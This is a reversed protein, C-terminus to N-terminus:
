DEFTFRFDGSPLMFNPVPKGAEVLVNDTPIANPGGPLRFAQILRRGAVPLLDAPIDRPTRGALTELWEPRGHRMPYRPFVVQMDTYKEMGHLVPYSGDKSRLMFPRGGHPKALLAEYLPSEALRWPHEHFVTQDVHLMDLNTMRRLHEGMMVMGNPLTSKYLHGYGVFILVKADKDKAFIRDVLNKAQGLERADMNERPTGTMGNTTHEYSIIKWGDVMARNVFDAYVPDRTYTGFGMDVYGHTTHGEDPDNFTEAALYTYGIKRLEIALKHAFARHMPVHHAENILVVRKARAAAVISQIADEVTADEIIKREDAKLPRHGGRAPDQLDYAAIAGATDGAFARETGLAQLRSQESKLVAKSEDSLKDGAVDAPLGPIAAEAKRLAEMYTDPIRGQAYAPAQLTLVIGAITAFVKAVPNM